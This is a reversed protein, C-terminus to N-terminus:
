EKESFNLDSKSAHFPFYPLYPFLWIIIEIYQLIEGLQAPTYVSGAATTFLKSLLQDWIDGEYRGGWWGSQSHSHLSYSSHIPDKM